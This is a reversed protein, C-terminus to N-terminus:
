EWEQFMDILERLKERAEKNDMLEKRSEVGIYDRVFISTEKEGFEKEVRYFAGESKEMQYKEACFIQFDKDKCMLGARAIAREGDTKQKPVIPEENDDLQVMAVQYRSGVWHRFLSEPVDEPHVSLTLIFGHKDQRMTLKVAEFNITARKMENEYDM